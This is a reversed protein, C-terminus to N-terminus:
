DVSKKEMEQAILAVPISGYSLFKDHFRRLSFVSGWRKTMEQRLQKIRDTGLLYMVAAGPFMSNKVAEGYAADHGMGAHQEYFATAEELAFQGRHLRVDVIARACMRLRSQYEAYVELPTLFGVEGMLHTAYCAWGEAMTGGCFMAIRSACDVAAVQGIRSAARYAHWNQVHHGISGHHVVHNLKIVSDNHARLLREQEDPPMSPEIPSVLYDHVPPRDFAAPARYFLFYLYPAAQRAWAPRPVYQIPFDPWTLLEQALATARCAEWLETYREYYGQTTPHLDASQGLAAQWTAAGFESAHTNLYAEAEAMEAEAYRVIEDGDMELFHGQRVMLDFASEGCAYREVAHALLETELYQQYAAFAQAAQDAARRFGPDAIAGESILQDVGDGLFALAGKCERIARETWAPPAVRVNAQAQALLAPVAEMRAIASAVRQTLPAFPTLFLSILGFIAEGTYLSPNGRHFHDSTYEWQQIELFGKALKRDLAEAESLPEEPLRGLRQLLTEVSALIDSAGQESYEPLRDDCEHIGIFTANVPRYRYYAGFFDDLWATFAPANTEM